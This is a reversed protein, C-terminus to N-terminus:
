KIVNIEREREITTPDEERYQNFFPLYDDKWVIINYIKMCSKWSSYSNFMRDSYQSKGKIISQKYGSNKFQEMLFVHGHFTYGM